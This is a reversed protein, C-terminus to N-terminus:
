VPLPSWKPVEAIALRQKMRWDQGGTSHGAAQIRHAVAGVEPLIRSYGKHQCGENTTYCCGAAVAELGCAQVAQSYRNSWYGRETEHATKDKSKSHHCPLSRALTWFHKPFCRRLGPWHSHPPHIRGEARPLCSLSPFSPLSQDLALHLDCDLARPPSLAQKM